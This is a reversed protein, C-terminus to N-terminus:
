LKNINKELKEMVSSWSFLENQRLVKLNPYWDWRKQESWQWACGITLMIYMNINMYAM